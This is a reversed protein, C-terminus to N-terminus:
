DFLRAYKTGKLLILNLHDKEAKCFQIVDRPHDAKQYKKALHVDRMSYDEAIIYVQFGLTTFIKELLKEPDHGMKRVLIPFYEFFMILDQSSQILKEMGNLALMEAGEVDMKIVNISGLRDHFTDDLRLTEIEVFEERGSKFDPNYDRIGDYQKITHHGTDYPCLYLKIREKKDSVANNFATVHYYNNLHINKTLYGFNRPEPEFCFVRGEPGVLHASLLTFYGINAGIDLVVDGKRIIKKFLDTTIEEHIRNLAYHRFTRRMAIDPHFVDV